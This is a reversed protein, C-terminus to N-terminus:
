KDRESLTPRKIPWNFNIRKDNWKVSIQNKSDIYKGKFAWKYSYIAEKSLCLWSNLFNPPILLCLKNKDSLNYSTYKLYNKSDVRFDVVVNLVSGKICTVMKWSKNDGHFGRLVNKKSLAFKDLNFKLNQFHNQSWTTWIQGRFDKFTDNKLFKVERLKKDSYVKM